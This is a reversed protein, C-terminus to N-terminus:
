LMCYKPLLLDDDALYLYELIMKSTVIKSLPTLIKFKFYLSLKLTPKVLGRKLGQFGPHALLFHEGKIKIVKGGM